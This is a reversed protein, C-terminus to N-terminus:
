QKAGSGAGAAAKERAEKAKQAEEDEKKEKAALEEATPEGSATALRARFRTWDTKLRERGTALNRPQADSGTYRILAKVSSLIAAAEEYLAREDSSIKPLLAELEPRAKDLMEQLAEADPFESANYGYAYAVPLMRSRIEEAAVKRSVKIPRLGNGQMLLLAASAHRPAQIRMEQLRERVHRNALFIGLSTNGSAATKQIQSFNGSASKFWSDKKESQLVEVVEGLNSALIVEYKMFFEANGFVLFAELIPVCDSPVVLIGGQKSAEDLNKLREWMRRPSRWKGEADPYGIVIADKRPEIGSLSAEMLVTAAGHLVEINDDVYKQNDGVSLQAKVPEPLKGHIASVANTALPKDPGRRMARLLSTYDSLGDTPFRFTFGPDADTKVSAKVNALMGIYRGLDKDWGIFPVHVSVEGLKVQAPGATAPPATPPTKEGEEPSLKPPEAVAKPDEFAELPAVLGKWRAASDASADEDNATALPDKLYSALTKGTAGAEESELWGVVELVRRKTRAQSGDDGVKPTRKELLDSNVEKAHKHGSDLTLAVAVLQAAARLSEPKGESGMGAALEALDGALNRMSGEDLLLQDRRLELADEQPPVYVAAWAMMPHMVVWGAAGFFFGKMRAMM